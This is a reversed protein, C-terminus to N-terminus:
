RKPIRVERALPHKAGDPSRVVLELRYRGPTLRWSGVLTVKTTTSLGRRRGSAVAKGGRMLKADVTLLSANRTWQGIPFVVTCMARKPGATRCSVRQPKGPVPTSPKVVPVAPGPPGAPGAPGEPGAPGPAGTAGAPGEPGPPGQPGAPGQPGDSPKDKELGTGQLPATLSDGSQSSVNLTASRPGAASPNFRVAVTCSEDPELTARRCDDDTRFFDDAADGSISVGEITDQLDGANTVTVQVPRSVAGVFTDAFPQPESIEGAFAMARGRLVVTANGLAGPVNLVAQKEGRSRRDFRVTVTCTDQFLTRAACANATVSFDAADAGGVVPPGAADYRTRTCQQFFGCSETYTYGQGRFAVQKETPAGVPEAGFDVSPTLAAVASAPAPALAGLLLLGGIAGITSAAHPPCLIRHRM